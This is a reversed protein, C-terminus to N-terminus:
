VLAPPLVLHAIQLTLMLDNNATLQGPLNETMLPPPRSRKNKGRQNVALAAAQRRWGAEERIWDTTKPDVYHLRLWPKTESPQVSDTQDNMLDDALLILLQHTPVWLM